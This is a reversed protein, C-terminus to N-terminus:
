VNSGINTYTLFPGVIVETLCSSLPFQYMPDEEFAPWEELTGYQLVSSDPWKSDVPTM